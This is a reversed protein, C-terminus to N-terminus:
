WDCWARDVRGLSILLRLHDPPAWSRSRRPIHKRDLRKTLIANLSVLRIAGKLSSMFRQREDGKLKKDSADKNCSKMKEQQPTLKATDEGKLCASMFQKRQDGKKDAAKANCDKMRQQQAQQKESPARNSKQDAALTVCPLSGLTLAVLTLKLNM